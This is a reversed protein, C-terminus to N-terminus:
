IVWVGVGTTAGEHLRVELDCDRPRAMPAGNGEEHRWVAPSGGCMHRGAMARAKCASLFYVYAHAGGWAYCAIHM